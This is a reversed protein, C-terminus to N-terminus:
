VQPTYQREPDTPSMLGICHGDPDEVIAYRAGFFADYPKRRGAYGAGTLEAYKDDVADRSALSFGIVPSGPELTRDGWIHAMVINDIDLKAGGGPQTLM